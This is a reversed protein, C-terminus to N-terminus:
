ERSGEPIKTGTFDKSDGQGISFTGSIKDGEVTGTINVEMGGGLGLALDVVIQNGEVSGDEFDFSGFQLILTGSLRADEQTLILRFDMIGSGGEVTIEWRGTLDVTPKAGGKKKEKIVFRKGDAFIFKIKSEKEWLEGETIILNAIKGKEITGIARELGLIKAADSTLAKLADDKSLGNEIAKQVGKIVKGPDSIGISTFAFPIEAEALRAANRPYIDTRAEEESYKGLQKYISGGPVKYTLGTIVKARAAKIENILRFAEGKMDAIVYKLSFERGLKIARRIDHQNKCFFIIRQKGKIYPALKELLEDYEPRPINIMEKKWRSSHLLYHSTDAFIQRLYAIVGMLSGPYIGRGARPNFAIGLFKGKEILAIKKDKDSLITVASQGTFIGTSFLHNVATFGASHHKTLGSETISIFDYMDPLLIENKADSSGAEGKSKQKKKNQGLKKVWSDSLADIFGPYVSLNEGEIVEADMPISIKSGVAVILGERIIVTGNEIMRGPGTIIKCNKIAWASHLELRGSVGFHTLLILILFILYINRYRTRM